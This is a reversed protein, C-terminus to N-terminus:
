QARVTAPMLFYPLILTLKVFLFISEYDCSWGTVHSNFFYPGVVEKSSIGCWCITPLPRSEEYVKKKFYRKKNLTRDENGGIPINPKDPWFNGEDTFLISDLIEPNKEIRNLMTEAFIVRRECDKTTLYPLGFKAESQRQVLDMLSKELAPTLKDKEADFDPPLPNRTWHRRPPKWGKGKGSSTSKLRPFSVLQGSALKPLCKVFLKSM